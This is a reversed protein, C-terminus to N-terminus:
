YSCLKHKVAYLVLGVRSKVQLKHFLSERYGDITKPSLFMKAAVEKYTLESCAYALFEMERDSIKVKTVEDNIVNHLLATSVQDTYYFGKLFVEKLASQFEIPDIDKLLYGKAGYKMMHILKKEDDEMTLALVLQEKKNKNLWEMTEMGDMVPMQLDLLVLDYLEGEKEFHNVLEKGNQFMKVVQYSENREILSKLSNAFLRHDEVLAIRKM